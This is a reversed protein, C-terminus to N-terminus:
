REIIWRDKQFRKLLFEIDKKTPSSKLKSIEKIAKTSSLQYNESYNEM